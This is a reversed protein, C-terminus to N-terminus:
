CTTCSTGPSQSTSRGPARQLTAHARTGVRVPKLLLAVRAKLYDSRRWWGLTEYLHLVSLFAPGRSHAPTLLLARPLRNLFTRQLLPAGRVSTHCAPSPRWCTSARTPGRQMSRTSCCCRTLGVSLVTLERPTLPGCSARVTSDVVAHNIARELGVLGGPQEEQAAETQPPTSAVCARVRSRQLPLQARQLSLAPARAASLRPPAYRPALSRGSLAHM